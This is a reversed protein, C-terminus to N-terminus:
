MFLHLEKTRVVSFLLPHYINANFVTLVLHTIVKVVTLVHFLTYFNSIFILDNDSIQM